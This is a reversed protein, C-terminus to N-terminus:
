PSSATVVKTESGPDALVVVKAAQVKPAQVSVSDALVVVKTVEM